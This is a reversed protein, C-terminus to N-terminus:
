GVRVSLLLAETEVVSRLYFGHIEEASGLNVLTASNTEMQCIIALALAITTNASHNTSLTRVPNPSGTKVM